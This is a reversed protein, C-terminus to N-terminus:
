DFESSISGAYEYLAGASAPPMLEGTIVIMIDDCRQVIVAQLLRNTSLPQSINAHYHITLNSFLSTKVSQCLSIAM